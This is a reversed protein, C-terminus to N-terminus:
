ERFHLKKWIIEIVFVILGGIWGYFVFNPFEFKEVNREVNSVRKFNKKRIEEEFKINFRENWLVFLGASQIRHLIENLREFFLFKENVRYSYLWNRIQIDPNFYAKINLRKQVHLLLDSYSSDTFFTVSTNFSHITEYFVNNGVSIVKAKCNEPITVAEIVSDKWQEDSTIIPFPSM